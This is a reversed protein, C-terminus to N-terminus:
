FPELDEAKTTRRPHRGYRAAGARAETRTVQEQTRARETKRTQRGKERTEARRNASSARALDLSRSHARGAERERTAAARQESRVSRGEARHERALTDAQRQQTRQAAQATARRTKAARALPKAPTFRLAGTAAQSAGSREFGYAVLVLGGVLFMTGGAALLLGGKLAKLNSRTLICGGTVPMTIVCGSSSSSPTAAGTTTAATLTADPGQYPTAGNLYQKYAGSKYTSWNALGSGDGAISIAAKAQANPDAQLAAPAGYAQTRPGALNGYYNIQWLGVSYDGTSPNNNLSASNGGSEALAIAAMTPALSPSGGNSTWLQELQGFNYTTM